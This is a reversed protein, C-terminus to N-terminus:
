TLLHEAHVWHVLAPYALGQGQQSTVIVVDRSEVVAPSVGPPQGIIEMLEPLGLRDRPIAVVIPCLPLGALALADAPEGCRALHLDDLPKATGYCDATVAVVGHTKADMLDTLRKRALYTQTTRDLFVTTDM